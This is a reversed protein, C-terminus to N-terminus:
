RCTLKLRENELSLTQLKTSPDYYIKSRYTGDLFHGDSNELTLDFNFSSTNSIDWKSNYDNAWEFYPLDCNNDEKFNITNMRFFFLGYTSDQYEVEEVSWSNNILKSKVASESCSCLLSFLLLSIFIKM